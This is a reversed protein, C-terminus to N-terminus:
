FSRQIMRDLHRFEGVVSLKKVDLRGPPTSSYGVAEVM